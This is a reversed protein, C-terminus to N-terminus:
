HVGALVVRRMHRQVILFLGLMPLTGVLTGALMDGVYFRFEAKFGAIYAPLTLADHNTLTIAFIYDVYAALFTLIATVAIGNGILPLAVRTFIQVATAGDIRAAEDLTTPIADFFTKVTWIALPLTPALLAYVLGVKTDLLNLKGILVFYPIVMTIPPLMRLVFVTLYLARAAAYRQLRSLGYACPLGLALATLTAMVSVIISNKLYLWLSEVGTLVRRYHEWSIPDPWTLAAAPAGESTLSVSVLSFLPIGIWLLVFVIGLSKAIGGLSARKM